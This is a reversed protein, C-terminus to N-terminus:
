YFHTWLYTTKVHVTSIVVGLSALVRVWYPLMEWFTTRSASVLSGRSIITKKYFKSFLIHLNNYDSYYFNARLIM